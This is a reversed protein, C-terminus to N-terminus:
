ASIDTPRHAAPDPFCSCWRQSRRRQAHRASWIGLRQHQRPRRQRFGQSSHWPCCRHAPPRVAAPGAGPVHRGPSERLQRRTGHGECPQPRVGRGRRPLCSATSQQRKRAWVRRADCETGTGAHVCRGHELQGCVLTPGRHEVAWRTHMANISRRLGASGIQCLMPLPLCLCQTCDPLSVQAFPTGAPPDHHTAASQSRLAGAPPLQSSGGSGHHSLGLM